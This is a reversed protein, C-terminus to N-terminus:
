TSAAPQGATVRDVAEVLRERLAQGRVSFARQEAAYQAKGENTEIPVPEYGLERLDYPAARMDLSRIDRALEFCDMVLESSVVPVLKHAWKYLDMGAHLCGPQELDVQSDRTPRLANRPLADPTFFRYADFHSCSIQHSEVVADTGQGGLRLPWGTHRVDSSGQRYVMAWEHLGFCGFRAPRDATRVLLERVFRLTDGRAAVFAGDDVRAQHGDVVYFRWDRHPARVAGALAVGAGPHWRRLQAPKYSYYAFLFDEVPHTRHDRRRELHAATAATVRTEHAATRERWEREGLVQM